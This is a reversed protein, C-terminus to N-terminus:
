FCKNKACTASSINKPSMPGFYTFKIANAIATIVGSVSGVSALPVFAAGQAFENLHKEAAQVALRTKGM